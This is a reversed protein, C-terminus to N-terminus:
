KGGGEPSTNIPAHRKGFRRDQRDSFNRAKEAQRHGFRRVSEAGRHTKERVTRAGSKAGDRLTTRDTSDRAPTSALSAHDARWNSLAQERNQDRREQDSGYTAAGAAGSAAATVALLLAPLLKM